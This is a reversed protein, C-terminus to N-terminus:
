KVIFIRTQIQPVKADTYLITYVGNGLGNLNITNNIGSAKQQLVLRGQGDIIEFQGNASEVGQITVNVNDQSPNPFAVLAINNNKPSLNHIGTIAGGTTFYQSFGCGFDNNFTGSYVYGKMPITAGNSLNKVTFSGATIGYSPNQDWVWWHLGDCGVDNISLKYYGLNPLSVTDIYSMNTSDILRSALVNNNMDTIQWTTESQDGSGIFNIGESNTNLTIVLSTPWTPAAVFQSQYKNNTSDEDAAGNVAIIKANFIYVGNSGSLSM